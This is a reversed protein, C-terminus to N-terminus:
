VNKQYKVEIERWQKVKDLELTLSEIQDKMEDITKEV